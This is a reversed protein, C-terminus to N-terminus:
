HAIARPVAPTHEARGHQRRHQGRLDAGSMEGGSAIGLPAAEAPGDAGDIAHLDNLVAAREVAKLDLELDGGRALEGDGDKGVAAAAADQAVAHGLPRELVD